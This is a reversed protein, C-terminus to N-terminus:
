SLSVSVWGVNMSRHSVPRKSVRPVSINSDMLSQSSSKSSLFINSWWIIGCRCLASGSVRSPHRHHLFRFFLSNVFHKLFNGFVIVLHIRDDTKLLMIFPAIVCHVFHLYCWACRA